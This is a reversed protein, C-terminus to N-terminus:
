KREHGTRGWNRSLIKVRAKTPLGEMFISWKKPFYLAEWSISLLMRSPFYLTLLLHAGQPWLHSLHPASLWIGWHDGFKAPSFGPSSQLVTQLAKSMLDPTCDQLDTNMFTQLILQEGAQGGTPGRFPAASGAWTSKILLPSVQCTYIYSYLSAHKISLRRPLSLALSPTHVRSSSAWSPDHAPQFGSSPKSSSLPSFQPYFSLLCPCSSKGPTSLM